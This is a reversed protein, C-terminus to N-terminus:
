VIKVSVFVVAIDPTEHSGHLVPLLFVGLPLVLLCLKCAAGL